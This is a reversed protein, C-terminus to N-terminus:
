LMESDKVGTTVRENKLIPKITIKLEGCVKVWM